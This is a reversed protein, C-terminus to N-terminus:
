NGRNAYKSIDLMNDRYRLYGSSVLHERIADAGFGIRKAVLDAHSNTSIGPIIRHTPARSNFEVQIYNGVGQEAMRRAMEHNHTVYVLNTGKHLYGCLAQNTLEMKEDFTTGEILDDIVVLSRPSSTFFTDRTQTLQTGFGGENDNLSDNHGIQYFIKDALNMSAKDAPVYCGVQGLIQAQVISKSLSTKGGSNPGTLFTIRQGNSLDVDNPVYDPIRKSQVTNILERAFFEHREGDNVQPITSHTLGRAFADYSQLEDLLGIAKYASRAPEGSLRERIPHLFHKIDMEVGIPYTVMVGFGMMMAGPINYMLKFSTSNFMIPVSIPKLEGFSRVGKIGIQRFIPGKALTEIDSGGVNTLGSKLARLYPTEPEPIQGAWDSVNTLLVRLDKLDSYQTIPNIDLPTGVRFKGELFKGAGEEKEKVQSLFDVVGQRLKDNSRLEALAEQKPIIEQSSTHPNRLVHSVVDRGSQTITNNVVGDLSDIEISRLTEDDLVPTEEYPFEKSYLNHKAMKEITM